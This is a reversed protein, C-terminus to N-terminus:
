DGEAKKVAAAQPAVSPKSLIYFSVLIECVAIIIPWTWGQAIYFTFIAWGMAMFTIAMVKAQLPVQHGTSPWQAPWLRM